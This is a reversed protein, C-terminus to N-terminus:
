SPLYADWVTSTRLLVFQVAGVPVGCDNLIKNVCTTYEPENM